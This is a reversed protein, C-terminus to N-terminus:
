ESRLDALAEELLKILEHQVDFSHVDDYSTQLFGATVAVLLTELKLENRLITSGDQGESPKVNGHGTVLRKAIEDYIHDVVKIGNAYEWGVRELISRHLLKALQANTMEEPKTYDM